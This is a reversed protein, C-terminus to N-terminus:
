TSRRSASAEDGPRPAAVLRPVVVLRRIEGRTYAALFKEYDRISVCGNSDGNPGLMYSHALLGSRGLTDQDGVPTMRLAQVGHFLTERPKLEYVNPPTAGANRQDVHGPDDMLGGLGSHAELRSGDPMYVVRASIDYVATLNDYGLSALDPSRRFLGGDPALSALTIRGPMLDSLKQLWNREQPQVVSPTNMAALSAEAPRSRPLPIAAVVAPKLEDTKPEETLAARSDRFSQTPALLGETQEFVMKRDSAVSQVEARTPFDISFSDAIDEQWFREGFSAAPDENASVLWSMQLAPNFDAVWAATGLALACLALARTIKGPLSVSSDSPLGTPATGYAMREGTWFSKIGCPRARSSASDHSGFQPM